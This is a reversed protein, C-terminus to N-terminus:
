ICVFSVNRNKYRARVSPSKTYEDVKRADLFPSALVQIGRDFTAPWPKDLEDKTIDNNADDISSSETTVSTDLTSSDVSSIDSGSRAILPTDESPPPPPPPPAEVDNNTM